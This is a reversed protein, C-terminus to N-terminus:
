ADPKMYWLKKKQKKETGWLDCRGILLLRSGRELPPNHSENVPSCGVINMEDIEIQFAM